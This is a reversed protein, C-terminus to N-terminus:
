TSLLESLKLFRISRRADMWYIKMGISSECQSPTTAAFSILALSPTLVHKGFSAAPDKSKV